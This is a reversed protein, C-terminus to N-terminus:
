VATMLSTTKGSPVRHAATKAIVRDPSAGAAFVHFLSQSRFGSMTRFNWFRNFVIKCDPWALRDLSIIRSRPAPTRSTLILCGRQLAMANLTPFSMWM